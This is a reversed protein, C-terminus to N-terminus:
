VYRLTIRTMQLIMHCIAANRATIREGVSNADNNDHGIMNEWPRTEFTTHSISQRRSVYLKLNM